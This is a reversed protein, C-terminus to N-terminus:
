KRLHDFSFRGAGSLLLAVFIVLYILALQDFSTFFAVGLDICVIFAAIRTFLGIGVFFACIGEAFAALILSPVIGIGIPDAFAFQGHIMHSIKVAGHGYILMGAAVVRLILLATSHTIANKRSVTPSKIM